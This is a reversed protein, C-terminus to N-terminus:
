SRSLFAWCDESLSRPSVLHKIPYNVVGECEIIVHAPEEETRMSARCLPSDTIGLNFMHKNFPGYGYPCRSNLPLHLDYEGMILLTLSKSRLVSSSKLSIIM